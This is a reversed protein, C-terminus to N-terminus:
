HQTCTTKACVLFPKVEFNIHEINEAGVAKVKEEEYEEMFEAPSMRGGKKM